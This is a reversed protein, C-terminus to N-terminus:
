SKISGVHFTSRIKDNRTHTNSVNNFRAGDHVPYFGNIIEYRNSGPVSLQFVNTNVASNVPSQKLVIMSTDYGAAGLNLSTIEAQILIRLDDVATKMSVQSLARASIYDSLLNTSVLNDIHKQTIRCLFSLLGFQTAATLRFDIPTFRTTEENL